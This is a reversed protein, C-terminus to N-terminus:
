LALLAAANEGAIQKKEEETFDCSLLFQLYDEQKAWPSDSGFLIKETGHKRALRVFGDQTLNQTYPM